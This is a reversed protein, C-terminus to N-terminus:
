RAGLGENVARSELHCTVHSLQLSIGGAASVLPRRRRQPAEEREQTALFDARRQLGCRVSGRVVYIHINIKIKNERVVDIPDLIVANGSHM